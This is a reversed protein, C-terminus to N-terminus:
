PEANADPTSPTESTSPATSGAADEDPAANRLQKLSQQLQGLAEAADQFANEGLAQMARQFADAAQNVLPRLGMAGGDPTPTGLPPQAPADGFLGQLAEEFTEAYSLTDEHMVAVLRLEPYAATEAQLYIPEVYLLTDEVPIALVNGRIVNSGRQDWLTLQGSLYSDQDIKTEVQQPGLVRKEKPFKYALLRGYNPPDCMGAMWGILVQRNKPTFPMILTYEVADSEPPRWMVYYPSVPIVDNYYKETARVWLDEQNYFVSPDTMHYKAYVLGQLLLMDVPYRIHRALVEDMAERPQLLGPFAKSWANVLPDGPDFVYFDVDGNYADVVAKVSNRVYNVRDLHREGQVQTLVDANRLPGPRGRPGTEQRFSESYPFYGSSTYGDIIWYLRGHAIVMYPDADFDLFPALTKVRHRIQRRFQIRTGEQPYGSMLLKTGDYRWGFLFKRWLGEMLVGGTGNYHVYVNKEGSPYNLEPESSNVVAPYRTLEGYYIAPEEIKLRPHSARPPLDKLLLKPLGQATFESVETLVAGYGHTYKFRRNVFTDSQQPLNDVNMERASVMVQRYRDGLRYRDVDVDEFEYYLRIEQFQRFVADLARWDWLRVNEFLDDNAQAMARTFQGTHPFRREEVQELHFAKRTMMISNAIYPREYTIENPEVLLSQTLSPAIDLLLFGAVFIVGAVVAGLLATRGIEQFAALAPTRKVLPALGRRIGAAARNRLAPSAALLAAALYLAAMALRAPLRVHMDTWGPGQVVGYSSYLLHFIAMVESWALFVLAAAALPAFLTFPRSLVFRWAEEADQADALTNVDTTPSPGEPADPADPADPDANRRALPSEGLLAALAATAFGIFLAATALEQLRDLMPLTFLYFGVTLGLAPDAVAGEGTSAGYLFKLITEWSSAAMVGCVVGTLASAALRLLRNRGGRGRGSATLPHLLAYVGGGFVVAGAVISLAQTLFARWFRDGYGVADFWLADIWVDMLQFFVWLGAALVVGAAQLVSSGRARGRWFLLAALTLFFLIFVTYM